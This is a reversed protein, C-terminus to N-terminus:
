RTPSTDVLDLTSHESFTALGQLDLNREIRLPLWNERAFWIQEHWSGTLDGSVQYTVDVAIAVVPQNAVTVEAPRTVKASGQLKATLRAPGGSLSLQCTFQTNDTGPTVLIGPDCTMAASPSLAGIKQHKDHTDIRLTGTDDLCYSTEETHQELLNLTATFCSPEGKVIVVTMTDPYTRTEAPLVGLKVVEQGTAAYRYVGPSPM